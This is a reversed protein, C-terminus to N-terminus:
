EAQRGILPTLWVPLRPPQVAPENASSTTRSAGSRRAIDVFAARQEASLELAEALASLTQPYPSRRVGRELAAVAATALGAREALAAQSLGARVRLQRLRQGFSATPQYMSLDAPVDRTRSETLASGRVPM